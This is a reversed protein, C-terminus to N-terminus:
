TILRMIKRALSSKPSRFTPLGFRTGKDIESTSEQIYAQDIAFLRINERVEEISNEVIYRYIKVDKTQDLRDVRAAAQVEVMPNWHPEVLHVHTAATLNLRNRFQSFSIM